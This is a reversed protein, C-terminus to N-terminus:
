WFMRSPKGVAAVTKGRKSVQEATPLDADPLMPTPEGSTEVPLGYVPVYTGDCFFVVADEGITEVRNVGHPYTVFPSTGDSCMVTAKV